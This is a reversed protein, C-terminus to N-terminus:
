AYVIDHNINVSSHVNAVFGVTRKRESVHAITAIVHLLQEFGVFGITRCGIALFTSVTPSHIHAAITGSKPKIASFPFVWPYRLAVQLAATYFVVEFQENSKVFEVGIEHGFEHFSFVIKLMVFGNYVIVFKDSINFFLLLNYSFNQNKRCIRLHFAIFSAPM